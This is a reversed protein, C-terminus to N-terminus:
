CGAGQQKWVRLQQAGRVVIFEEWLLRVRWSEVEVSLLTFLRGLVASLWVDGIGFAPMDLMRAAREGM